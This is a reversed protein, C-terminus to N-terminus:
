TDVVLSPRIVLCDTIPFPPTKISDNFYSGHRCATIVFIYRVQPWYDFPNVILIGQVEYNLLVLAVSTPTHEAKFIAYSYYDRVVSGSHSSAHLRVFYSILLSLPLYLSLDPHSLHSPPNLPVPDPIPTPM